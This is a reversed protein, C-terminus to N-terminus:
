ELVLVVCLAYVPAAALTSDIRDLVGGHGPLLKGSDKVGAIRKQVSVVLDGVISFAATLVCVGTWSLIMGYREPWILSGTGLSLASVALIGGVVGEKTKGPSINPALKTKGIRRGTFFAAVDAISVVVFLGILWYQPTETYAYIVSISYVAASIILIGITPRVVRSASQKQMKSLTAALIMWFVTAVMCTLIAFPNFHILVSSVAITVAVFAAAASNAQIGALKSWEFAAIGSVALLLGLLGFPPLFFLAGLLTAILILGTFIRKRLLATIDTRKKHLWAASVGYVRRM